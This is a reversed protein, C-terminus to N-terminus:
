AFQVLPPGRRQPVGVVLRCVPRGAPVEVPGASPLAPTVVEPAQLTPVLMALAARLARQLRALLGAGALAGALHGALVPLAVVVVVGMVHRQDGGLALEGQPCGDDARLLALGLGVRALGGGPVCQLMSVTARDGFRGALAVVALVAVAVPALWAALTWRVWPTGAAGRGVRAMGCRYATSLGRRPARRAAM